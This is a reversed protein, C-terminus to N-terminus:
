KQIGVLDVYKGGNQLALAELFRGGAPDKGFNITHIVVRRLKNLRQMEELIDTPKTLEGATPMGDSLLFITDVATDYHKDYTGTGSVRLAAKLADYTNTRGEEMSTGGRASRRNNNQRVGRPKQKQIYGIASRKNGETMETLKKKWFDVETHYAIINLRIRGEYNNITQVLESKAIEMKVGSSLERNALREPSAIEVEDKMSRSVDLLFLIRESPTPIGYYRTRTKYEAKPRPPENASKAPAGLSRRSKRAKEKASPPVKYGEESRAWWRSWSDADLGFKMNTIATLAKTADDKIRGDQAALEILPGIARADRLIGLAQAAASQVQWQEDALVAILAEVAEKAEIRGLSDAAMTRVPVESDTSLTVLAAASAEGPYSGLAEATARRVGWDRDEVLGTLTTLSTPDGIKGLAMVAIARRDGKASGSAIKQIAEVAEPSQYGGLVELVAARVKWSRDGLVPELADVAEASDVESISRVVTARADPNKDKIYKSFKDLADNASAMAAATFVLTAVLMTLDAQPRNM